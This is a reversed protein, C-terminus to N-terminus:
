VVIAESPTSTAENPFRLTITTGEHPASEVTMSAREGYFGHMRDHVNKVAIGLGTESKPHLIGQRAAEDMGVGDDAVDVLVDAGEISGTIRVTLLGTAPMAHKVANEVLPQLLFPPVLMEQILDAASGLDVIMSLRDEGFRAVEFTFYRQTQELERQLPIRDQANELTSRYFVAFERLLIRAKAPDTRIFSAITNITNFLFHPNIQSQLMKLEMSTALERQEELEAAAIQTSLLTGFGQAISKQTETIKRSSRYYFKLTGFIDRGVTLPIIIASEIMKSGEPFGIDERTYIVRPQGEDIVKHTAHTRIRAGSPNEAEMYGAYGLIIKRDTIAVAIAQTSSLLFECIQQAAKQDLGESTLDVMKSSLRLMADTQRARISDPDLLLRIIIAVSITFILGSCLIIPVSMPSGFITWILTGAAILAVLGALMELSLPRPMMHRLRKKKDFTRM